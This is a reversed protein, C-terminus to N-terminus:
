NAPRKALEQLGAPLWQDRAVLDKISKVRDWVDDTMMYKWVGTVARAFQANQKAEVEVREIWAAGHRGLLGEIPGAAIHGLDDDNAAQRVAELIVDWQLEPKSMFTMATIRLQADKYKPDRTRCGALYDSIFQRTEDTM